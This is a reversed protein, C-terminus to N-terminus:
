SKIAYSGFMGGKEIRWEGLGVSYGGINIMNIIQELSYAGNKNYSLKIKTGWNNFQARYRIDATGMGIRVMDERMEPVDGQLVVLESQKPDTGQIHFSGMISVKDKSIGNRYAASAAALKIAVAPFGFRPKSSLVKQIEDATFDTPKIEKDIWYLSDAFDQIPNKPERKKTKTVGMQKDLMEKKAKESWNHTILPTLGVLDLEIEEIELTQIEIIKASKKTAM